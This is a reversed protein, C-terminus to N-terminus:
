QKKEKYLNAGSYPKCSFRGKIYNIYSIYYEYGETMFSMNLKPIDNFGIDCTFWRRGSNAYTVIFRNNNIMISQGVTPLPTELFDQSSKQGGKFKANM